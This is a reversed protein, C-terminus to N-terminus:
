IDRIPHCVASQFLSNAPGSKGDLIFEFLAMKGDPLIITREYRYRKDAKAFLIKWDTEEREKSNGMAWVGFDVSRCPILQTFLEPQSAMVCRIERAQWEGVTGPEPLMHENLLIRSGSKLAPILARLIDVCSSDPWDHLICRMFYIDAGVVPQPKFFDHEQFSIRGRLKEPLLEQCGRIVCPQDQVVCHIGAHKEALYKMATGNSGGMDVVTLNGGNNSEWDYTDLAQSFEFGQEKGILKM